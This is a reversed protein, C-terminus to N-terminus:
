RRPNDGRTRVPDDDLIARMPPSDTDDYQGRRVAWVFAGVAVAAIVLALPLLFYLVSV